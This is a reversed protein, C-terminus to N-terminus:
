PAGIGTRLALLVKKVQAGELGYDGPLTDEETTKIVSFGKVMIEAAKQEADRKFGTTQAEYLASKRGVLSDPTVGVSSVEARETATKQVLLTTEASAKFVNEKVLDFEADLKCKTATLVTGEIVANAAQNNTLLTKADIALEESVLNTTQQSTNAAQADLLVGEKPINQLKAQAIALEAISVLLEQAKIAIESEALEIKKDALIVEKNTQAVQADILMGQKPVNLTEASVQATQANLLAIEAPIKTLNLELIALEAQAKQVEVGALIIQQELLQAELANKDRQLLFELSVRLVPELSGLYVTSYEPGKIRNKTYEADLHAKNARMLVDFVGVGELTAETLDAVTLPTM